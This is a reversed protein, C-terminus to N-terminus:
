HAKLPSKGSTTLPEHMGIKECPDSHAALDYAGAGMILDEGLLTLTSDRHVQQTLTKQLGLYRETILM